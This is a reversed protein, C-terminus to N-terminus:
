ASVSESDGVEINVQPPDTLTRHLLCANVARFLGKRQRADLAPAAVWIRIESVKVPHGGKAGTVRVDLGLLPLGRARLYEAAYHMACAGLAALFLEPPTMGDNDGHNETPQDCLVRHGRANAEFQNGKIHRIQVEM